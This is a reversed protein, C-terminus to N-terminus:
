KKEKNEFDLSLSNVCYRMGTETPGDDFIHGLHGGCNACVIETRIMGHSTDRIKLISGSIEKDFSPWGCMSNFKMDSTFLPSQCGACFYTGASNQELLEGSFPKETGKSRLISYREPGLLELWEADNKQVKFDGMSSLNLNTDQNKAQPSVNVGKNKCSCLALSM